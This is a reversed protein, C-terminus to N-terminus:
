KAFCLFVPLFSITVHHTYPYLHCHLRHLLPLDLVVLRELVLYGNELLQYKRREGRDLVVGVDDFEVFGPFSIPYTEQNSLQAFPSFQEVVNSLCLGECLALSCDNHPLREISETVEMLLADTVSIDFWFIEQQIFLIIVGMYLQYIKTQCFFHRLVLQHASWVPCGVVDRRLHQFAAVSCLAVGPGHPHDHVDHECTARGETALIIVLNQLAHHM